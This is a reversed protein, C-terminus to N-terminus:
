LMQIDTSFYDVAGSGGLSGGGGCDDLSRMVSLRAGGGTAGGGILGPLDAEEDLGRVCVGCDENGM